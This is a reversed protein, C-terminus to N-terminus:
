GRVFVVWAYIVVCAAASVAIEGIMEMCLETQQKLCTIDENILAAPDLVPACACIVASATQNPWISVGAALLSM